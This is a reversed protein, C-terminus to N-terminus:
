SVWGDNKETGLCRQCRLDVVAKWARIADGLLCTGDDDGIAFRDVEEPNRTNRVRLEHGNCTTLSDREEASSVAVFGGCPRDVDGKAWGARGWSWVIAKGGHCNM